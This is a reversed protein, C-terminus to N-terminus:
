PKLRADRFQLVQPPKRADRDAPRQPATVETVAGRRSESDVWASLVEGPKVALVDGAPVTVAATKTVATGYGLFQCVREYNIHGTMQGSSGPRWSVSEIRNTERCRTLEVKQVDDRFTVTAWGSADKTIGRVVGGVLERRRPAVEPATLPPAADFPQWSQVVPDVHLPPTPGFQAELARPSAGAQRAVEYREYRQKEALMQTYLATGLEVGFLHRGADEASMVQREASLREADGTVALMLALESTLEVVFPDFACDACGRLYQQRLATLTPVSAAATAPTPQADYGARVEDLRQYLAAHARFYQKRRAVVAAPADLYMERRRADFQAIMAEIGARAREFRQRFAARVVPAVPAQSLQRDLAAPDILDLYTRAMGWDDRGAEPLFGVDIVIAAAELQNLVRDNIRAHLSAFDLQQGRLWDHSSECAYAWVVHFPRQTPAECAPQLGGTSRAGSSSAWPTACAALTVVSLGAFCVPLRM